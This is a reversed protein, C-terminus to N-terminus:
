KLGPVNARKMRKKGNFAAMKFPPAKDVGVNEATLFSISWAYVEEDNTEGEVDVAVWFTLAWQIPQGFINRKFCYWDSEVICAKHAKEIPRCTSNFYDLAAQNLEAPTGPGSFGKHDGPWQREAIQKALAAADGAASEDVKNVLDILDTNHPDYRLGLQVLDKLEGFKKARLDDAYSGIGQLNQKAQTAIAEGLDKRLPTIKKLIKDFYKVNASWDWGSPNKGLLKEMAAELNETDNGCTKGLIEIKARMDASDTKEFKELKEIFEVYDNPHIQGNEIEYMINNLREKEANLAEWAAYAEDKANGASKFGAECEKELRAVETKLRLLAPHPQTGEDSFYKEASAVRSKATEMLEQGQQANKMQTTLVMAEFANLRIKDWNKFFDPRAADLKESTNACTWYGMQEAKKAANGIKAHLPNVDPDTTEWGDKLASYYYGIIDSFLWQIDIQLSLWNWSDNGSRDKCPEYLKGAAKVKNYKDIIADINKDFETIQDYCYDLNGTPLRKSPVKPRVTPDVVKTPATKVPEAAASDDTKPEPQKPATTASDAAKPEPQAPTAAAKSFIISAIEGGSISGDADKGDQYTGTFKLYAGSSSTFIWARTLKQTNGDLTTVTHERTKIDHEIKAIDKFFIKIKSGGVPTHEIWGDPSISTVTIVKKRNTEIVAQLSDAAYGIGAVTALLLALCLQKFWARKM